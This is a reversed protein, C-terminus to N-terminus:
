GLVVQAEPDERPLEDVVAMVQMSTLEVGGHHSTLFATDAADRGTCIRLMSERPALGTADVLRWRSGNWAEVVAHFDMPFLGPAYVAALRAPVDLARLLTIVLHAYDRCVGEGLLLTDVADDTPKSSGGIYLLRDHVWTRVADIRADAGELHGFERSATSLLRDSPCYRSPRLASIRDIEDPLPPAPTERRGDVQAVYEIVLDGQPCELAHSRGGYGADLETPPDLVVDDLTLTLRESTAAGAVAIQLVLLAPDTVTLHLRATVDRRM